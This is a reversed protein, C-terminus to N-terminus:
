EVLPILYAPNLFHANLFHSPRASFQALRTSLITSTTSALVGNPKMIESVRGIVDKKAELTEPVGEFVYDAQALCDEAGTLSVGTVRALTAAAEVETVVKLSMLFDLNERIEGKAESLLAESEAAPRKKFDIIEVDYGAFAFVHAIGRGMRGAGVSIIKTM